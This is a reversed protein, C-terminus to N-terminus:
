MIIDICMLEITNLNKHLRKLALKLIDCIIIAVHTHMRQFLAKGYSSDDDKPFWCNCYWITCFMLIRLQKKFRLYKEVFKKICAM